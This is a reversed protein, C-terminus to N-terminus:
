VSILATPSSQDRHSDSALVDDETLTRSLDDIRFDYRLLCKEGIKLILVPFAWGL